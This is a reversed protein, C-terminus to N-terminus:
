IWEPLPEEPSWQSKGDVVFDIPVSREKKYGEALIEITITPAEDDGTHWLFGLPFDPLRRTSSGHISYTPGGDWQIAKTIGADDYDILVWEEPTNVSRRFVMHNLRIVVAPNRASYGSLNQLFIKGLLPGSSKAHLLNDQELHAEFALNNPPSGAFEVKLQIDPLGTAVVYARLAVVGAIAALLLAGGGFVAGAEAMRDALDARATLALVTLIVVIVVTVGVAVVTGGILIKRRLLVADGRLHVLTRGPAKGHRNGTRALEPGPPVCRM